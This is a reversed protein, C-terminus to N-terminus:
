HYKKGLLIYFIFPYYHIYYSYSTTCTLPDIIIIIIVIYIDSLLLTAQLSRGCMIIPTLLDLIYTKVSSKGYQLLTVERIWARYYLLEFEVFVAATRNFM